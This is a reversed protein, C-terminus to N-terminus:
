MDEDMIVGPDTDRRRLRLGAAAFRERQEEWRERMAEKFGFNLNNLNAKAQPLAAAMGSLSPINMVPLNAMTPMSINPFFDRSIFQSPQSPTYPTVLPSEDPTLPGIDPTMPLLEIPAQKEEVTAAAAKRAKARRKLHGKVGGHMWSAHLMLAAGLMVTPVWSGDMIARSSPRMTDVCLVLNFIIRTLLMLGLFREDHRM